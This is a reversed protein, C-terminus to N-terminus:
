SRATYSENKEGTTQVSTSGSNIQSSRFPIMAPAVLYLSSFVFILFVCHIALLLMHRSFPLPNQTLFLREVWFWVGILITVVSNFIVAWSVRLWLIVAASLWALTTLVGSFVQLVISQVSIFSLWWNWSRLVGLTGVLSVMGALLFIFVLLYLLFPRKM